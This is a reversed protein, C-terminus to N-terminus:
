VNVSKMSISRKLFRFSLSTGWVIDKLTRNNLKLPSQFRCTSVLATANTSTNSTDPCIINIFRNCLFYDVFMFALLHINAYNFQHLM